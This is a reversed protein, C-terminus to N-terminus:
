SSWPMNYPTATDKDLPKNLGRAPQFFRDKHHRTCTLYERGDTHRRYLTADCKCRRGASTMAECRYPTTASM